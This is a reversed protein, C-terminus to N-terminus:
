VYARLGVVIVVVSMWILLVIAVTGRFRLFTMSRYSMSLM